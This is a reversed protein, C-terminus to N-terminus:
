SFLQIIQRCCNQTDMLIIRILDFSNVWTTFSTTTWMRVCIAWNGTAKRTFVYGCSFTGIIRSTIRVLRLPVSVKQAVTRIVVNSWWPKILRLIPVLVKVLILVLVSHVLTIVVLPIEVRTLILNVLILVLPIIVSILTLVIVWLTIKLLLVVELTIVVLLMPIELVIPSLIKWVLIM